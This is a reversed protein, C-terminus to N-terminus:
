CVIYPALFLQNTEKLCTLKFTILRCINLIAFPMTISSLYQQM